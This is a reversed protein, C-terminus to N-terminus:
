LEMRMLIKGYYNGSSDKLYNPHHGYQRFGIREYLRIAPNKDYVELHLIQIGFKNKALQQLQQLLLTGIGQGRYKGDILIVFLAQHKLKDITHVYINAAGVPKKKYLATLSAGKDLYQDWVRVADDIERQDSMPFGQLVNPQQLWKKYHELDQQITSRFTVLPKKGM